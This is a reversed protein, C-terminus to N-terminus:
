VTQEKKKRLLHLRGFPSKAKTPTETSSNGQLVDSSATTGKTETKTRKGPSFKLKGLKMPSRWKGWRRRKSITAEQSPTESIFTDMSASSGDEEYCDTEEICATVPPHTCEPGKDTLLPVHFEKMETLKELLGISSDDVAHKYGKFGHLAKEPRDHHRIWIDFVNGTRKENYAKSIGESLSERPACRFVRVVLETEVNRRQSIECLKRGVQNGYYAVMRPQDSFMNGYSFADQPGVNSTTETEDCSRCLRVEKPLFVTGEGIQHSLKWTDSGSLQERFSTYDITRETVVHWYVNPLDLLAQWKPISLWIGDETNLTGAHDVVISRATPDKRLIDCFHQLHESACSKGVPDSFEPESNGPSGCRNLFELEETDVEAKAIGTLLQDITKIM